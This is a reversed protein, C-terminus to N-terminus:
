SNFLPIYTVLIQCDVFDYKGRGEFISRYSKTVKGLIPLYRINLTCDTYGLYYQNVWTGPQKIVSGRPLALDSSFRAIRYTSETTLDLREVYRTIFLRKRFLSLLYWYRNALSFLHVEMFYIGMRNEWRGETRGEKGGLTARQASPRFLKKKRGEKQKRQQCCCATGSKRAARWWCPAGCGSISSGYVPIRALCIMRSLPVASTLFFIVGLGIWRKNRRRRRKRRRMYCSPVRSGISSSRWPDHARIREGVTDAKRGNFRDFLEFSAEKENTKQTKLYEGKRKKKLEKLIYSIRQMYIILGNLTKVPVGFYITSLYIALRKNNTYTWRSSYGSTRGPTRCYMPSLVNIRLKGEPPSEASKAREGVLGPGQRM